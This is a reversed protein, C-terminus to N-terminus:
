SRVSPVEFDRNSRCAPSSSFTPPLVLTTSHGAPLVSSLNLSCLSYSTTQAQPTLNPSRVIPLPTNDQRDRPGNPGAVVGEEAGADVDVRGFGAVWDRRPSECWRDRRRREKTLVTIRGRITLTWDFGCGKGGLAKSGVWRVLGWVGPRGVNKGGKLCQSHEETGVRM